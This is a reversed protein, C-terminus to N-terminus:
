DVIIVQESQMTPWQVLNLRLQVEQHCDKQQQRSRHGVISLFRPFTHCPFFHIPVFPEM